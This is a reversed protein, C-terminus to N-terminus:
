FLRIDLLYRQKKPVEPRLISASLPVLTSQIPNPRILSFRSRGLTARIDKQHNTIICSLALQNAPHPLAMVRRAM